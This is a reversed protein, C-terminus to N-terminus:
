FRNLKNKGKIIYSRGISVKNLGISSTLLSNNLQFPKSENHVQNKPSCLM